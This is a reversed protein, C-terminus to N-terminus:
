WFNNFNMSISLYDNVFGRTEYRVKCYIVSTKTCYRANKSPIWGYTMPRVSQGLLLGTWQFEKLINGLATLTIINQFYNGQIYFIPTYKTSFLTSLFICSKHVSSHLLVNYLAVKSIICVKVVDSLPHAHNENMWHLLEDRENDYFVVM